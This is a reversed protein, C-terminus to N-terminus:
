RSGCSGTRGRIGRGKRLPAVLNEVVGQVSRRRFQRQAAPRGREGADADGGLVQALMTTVETATWPLKGSLIEYAMVALAFQDTAPGVGRGLAQEPSLYAPTGIVSGEATLQTSLHATEEGVALRKVIGFDLLVVRGDDCVMVNDPKVDRHVLGALHAQGLTTAVARLIRLAEARELRGKRILARLTRGPVFEMVLYLENAPTQGVDYVQAVGRPDLANMARAERQLRRAAEGEPADKLVKIAVDRGEREDRALYVVGPM